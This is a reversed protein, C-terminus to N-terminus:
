HVTTDEQKSNKHTYIYHPLREGTGEKSFYSEGCLELAKRQKSKDKWYSSLGMYTWCPHFIYRGNKELRVIQKIRKTYSTNSEYFDLDFIVKTPVRWVEGFVRGAGPEGKASLMVAQGNVGEQTYLKLITSATVGFGLCKVKDQKVNKFLHHHAPHGSKMRGFIFVDHELYRNLNAADPSYYHDDLNNSVDISLSRVYSSRGAESLGLFDIFPESVKAL